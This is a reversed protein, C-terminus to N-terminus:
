GGAKTTDPHAGAPHIRGAALWGSLASISQEVEGPLSRMWSAVAARDEADAAQELSRLETSFGELGLTRGIGQLSHALRALEIWQG